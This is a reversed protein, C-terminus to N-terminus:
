RGKKRRERAKRNRELRKRNDEELWELRDLRKLVEDSLEPDKYKDVFDKLMFFESLIDEVSSMATQNRGRLVRELWNMRKRAESVVDKNERSHELIKHVFAKLDATYM